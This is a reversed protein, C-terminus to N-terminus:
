DALFILLVYEHCFVDHGQVGARSGIAANEEILAAFHAADRLAFEGLVKRLGAPDLVVRVLDPLALAGNGRLGQAFRAKAARDRRDADRVLALRRNKPIARRALGDVVGDDPLAAARRVDRIGKAFLPAHALKHGLFRSQVDVGVKGRRLDLPQEVM